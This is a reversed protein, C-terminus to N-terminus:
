YTLQNDKKKKKKKKQFPSLRGHFSNLPPIVIALSLQWIKVVLPVMKPEEQKPNSCQINVSVLMCVCVCTGCM